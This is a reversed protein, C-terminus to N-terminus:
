WRRRGENLKKPAAGHSRFFPFHRDGFDQRASDFVRFSIISQGFLLRIRNQSLCFEAPWVGTILANQARLVDEDRGDRRAPTEAPRRTSALRRRSIRATSRATTMRRSPGRQVGGPFADEV